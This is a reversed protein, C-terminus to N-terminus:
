LSVGWFGRSIQFGVNPRPKVVPAYDGRNVDEIRDIIASATDSTDASGVTFDFKKETSEGSTTGIQLVPLMRHPQVPHTGAFVLLTEAGTAGLGTSVELWDSSSCEMVHLGPDQVAGAYPLTPHVDHVTLGELFDKSSLLQDTESIVVSTGLALLRRVVDVATRATQGAPDVATALGIIRGAPKTPEDSGAGRARIHEHVLEDVIGTVATIGGSRQIGAWGFGSTEVGRTRLSDKFYDNHTKECGHELFITHDVAPHMAYGLMTRTYVEEADGGSVGCGETHPLAIVEWSDSLGLTRLSDNVRAAIQEAVQGSCLSSPLIEIIRRRHDGPPSGVADAPQLTGAVDAPVLPEGSFTRSPGTAEDSGPDGAQRWDRWIQVQSQGTYEGKSKEGSAVRCTLEVLEHAVDAFDAGELLTGANFDMDTELLQFRENTTVIKITPVFPFNTISGNGTTFLILNAGSAVQGAISELDNGPSDMFYYGPASMPEGYGIVHELATDPDKKRGAGLSKLTINYLGRYLNGGSVNGEATQGHRQAYKKFANQKELFREAVNEDAVRALVHEEAGILEDTEALNATAGGDLLEQVATGLLPNATVGSFADSGGCQLGLKLGELPARERTCKDAAALLPRVLAALSSVSDEFDADAVFYRITSELHLGGLSTLQQLLEVNSVPSDPDNVFVAAGVNPNVAFGALTRLLLHKNHMLTSSGGETHVVPTLADVNALGHSYEQLEETAALVLSRARSTVGIIAVDNRTGWGRGPGRRYGMFGRGSDPHRPNNTLVPNEPLAQEQTTDRDLFNVSLGTAYDEPNRMTLVDKMRENCLYDGPEIQATAYGFPYGWSMLHDGSTIRKVCLRHGKPVVTRVTVPRGDIDIREGAEIRETAIAANDGADPLLFKPTM